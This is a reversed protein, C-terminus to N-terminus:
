DSDKLVLKGGPGLEYVPGEATTVEVVEDTEDELSVIEEEIEEEIEEDFGFNETGASM